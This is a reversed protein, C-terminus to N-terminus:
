LELEVPLPLPRPVFNCHGGECFLLPESDDGKNDDVEAIGHAGGHLNIYMLNDSSVFNM